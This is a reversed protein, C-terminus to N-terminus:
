LEDIIKNQVQELLSPKLYDLAVTNDKLFLGVRMDNIGVYIAQSGGGDNPEIGKGYKKDLSEKLFAYLAEAAEQGGNSYNFQKCVAFEYLRGGDAISFRANDWRQGAFDVDKFQCVTKGGQAEQMVFTGRADVSTRLKLLTTIEGMKMGFFTNQVLTKKNPTQAYAIVSLTILAFLATIRRM